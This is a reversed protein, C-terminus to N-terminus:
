NRSIPFTQTITAQGGSIVPHKEYERDCTRPIRDSCGLCLPSETAMAACIGIACTTSAHGRVCERTKLTPDPRVTRPQAHATAQCFYDMSGAIYISSLPSNNIPFIYVSGVLTERYVM